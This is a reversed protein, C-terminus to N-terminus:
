PKKSNLIYITIKGKQTRQITRFNKSVEGTRIMRNVIAKITVPQVGSEDQTIAIAKGEPISQLLELWESHRKKAKGPIADEDILKYKATIKEM